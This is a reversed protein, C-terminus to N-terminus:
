RNLFAYRGAEIVVAVVVNQLSDEALLRQLVANGVFGTAGTVFIM